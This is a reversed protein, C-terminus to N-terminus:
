HAASAEAAPPAGERPVGPQFILLAATGVMCAALASVVGIKLWDMFRIKVHAHKDLLGLAVINATSGVLTINGGFCAGFM